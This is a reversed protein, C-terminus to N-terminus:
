EPPLGACGRAKRRMVVPPLRLQRVRGDRAAVTAPLVATWSALLRGHAPCSVSHLNRRTINQSRVVLRLGRYREFRTGAPDEDVFAAVRGCSRCALKVRRARVSPRAALMSPLSRALPKRPPLSRALWGPRM